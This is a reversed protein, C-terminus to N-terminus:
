AAKPQLLLLAHSAPAPSIPLLTAVLALAAIDPSTSALM